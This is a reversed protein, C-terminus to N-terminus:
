EKRNGSGMSRALVTVLIIAAVILVGIIVWTSGSLGESDDAAPEPEDATEELSEGEDDQEPEPAADEAPTDAEGAGGVSESATFTFEGSIPHGDSSVARWTVTYAGEPRDDILQQTVVPGAVEVDGDNVNEGDGTTIVVETGLDTIDENFTLSVEEPAAALQEGDDPDTGLLVSHAQAPSTIGFLVAALGVAIFTVFLRSLARPPRLSTLM